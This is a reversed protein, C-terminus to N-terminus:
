NPPSYTLTHFHILEKPEYSLKAQRLGKVGLDQERNLFRCRGQLHRATEQNIVQAAGKFNVDAKEFHIDYTDANLRSFVSFAVVKDEITIAIGELNLADFYEFSMQIASFEDKLSKPLTTYKELMTKSLNLAQSRFGGDLSHVEYGPFTRKFQSILNRKKHLKVGTLQSLSEVEYVYESIDRNSEVQFYDTIEPYQKIYTEPCLSFVGAIGAAQMQLSLVILESPNLVKGLPMFSNKSVTDYILVRDQYITWSLQSSMQWAFLNAFNYECSVPHFLSIYKEICEQDGIEFSKFEPFRIKQDTDVINECAYM